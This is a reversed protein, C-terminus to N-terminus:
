GGNPLGQDLGKTPETAKCSTNSLSWGRENMFGLSMRGSPMTYHLLGDRNGLSTGEWERLTDRISDIMRTKAKYSRPLHRWAQNQNVMVQGVGTIKKESRVFLLRFSVLCAIIYATIFEIVMWFWVWGVNLSQSFDSAIRGNQITGRIITVIVTFITLSFFARWSSKRGCPCVYAGFFASPFASFKSLVDTFADLSCCMITNRWERAINDKSTCEFFIVDLGSLTCKYELFALTVGFCGITTVTVVWWVIVYPTIHAGLRRFFLLFNMKVAYIGVSCMVSQSFIAVMANPVDEMFTAPMPTSGNGVDEMIYVSDLRLQSVLASALQICVVFLMLYDELFLRRFCLYRIYARSCFTLLCLAFGGWIVGKMAEVSLLHGTTSLVVDRARPVIMTQSYIQPANQESTVIHRQNFPQCPSFHILCSSSLPFLPRAM